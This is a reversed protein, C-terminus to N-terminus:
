RREPLFIEIQVGPLDCTMDGVSVKGKRVIVYENGTALRLQGGLDSVGELIDTFGTGGEAKRSVGAKFAELVAVYHAKNALSAYKPNSSLSKRIGVGCDAIAILLNEKRPYYQFTFAALTKGSHQAFNDVLESVILAVKNAPLQCDCNTLVRLLEDGIEDAIFDHKEIDVIDNLSTSTTLRRLREERITNEDFNFREWFNQRALYNRADRANPPVLHLGIGRGSFYRLFMGLYVVAFPSFFTVESLDVTPETSTLDVKACCKHVNWFHLNM